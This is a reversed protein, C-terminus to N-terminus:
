LARDLTFRCWPRGHLEGSSLRAAARPWLPMGHPSSFPSSSTACGPFRESSSPHRHPPPAGATSGRSSITITHACYLTPHPSNPHTTSWRPRPQGKIPTSPSALPRPKMALMLAEAHLCRNGSDLHRPPPITTLQHHTLNLPPLTSRQPEMTRTPSLPPAWPAPPADPLCCHSCRSLNSFPPRCPIRPRHALKAQQGSL